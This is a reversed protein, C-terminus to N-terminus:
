TLEKDSLEERLKKKEEELEKNAHMLNIHAEEDEALELERHNTLIQEDIKEFRFRLIIDKAYKLVIMEDTIGPFRNDWNSSISHKDFTIERVYTELQEDQLNTFVFDATVNEDKQFENKIIIVIKRHFGEAFEDPQIYKFLFEKINKDSEFLLKIIETELNYIVPSEIRSETLALTSTTSDDKAKIKIRSREFKEVQNIQKILESEM